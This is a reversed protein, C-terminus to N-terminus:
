KMCHKNNTNSSIIITKLSNVAILNNYYYTFAFVNSKRILSLEIHTLYTIFFNILKTNIVSIRFSSTSAMLFLNGVFIGTLIKTFM